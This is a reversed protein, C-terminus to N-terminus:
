LRAPHLQHEAEAASGNMQCIHIFGQRGDTTEPTLTAQPLTDIIKAALHLANVLKDKAKGPHISVGKFTVM